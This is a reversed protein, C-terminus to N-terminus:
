DSMVTVELEFHTGSPNVLTIYLEDIGEFTHKFDTIPSTLTTFNESQTMIDTIHM